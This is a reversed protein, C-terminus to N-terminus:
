QDRPDDVAKERLEVPERCCLCPGPFSTAIACIDCYYYLEYVQGNRVSHLNGTIEFRKGDDLARGKILLTRSYLNTDAFLAASHDNRVLSYIAGDKAEFRVAKPSGSVVRGQMYVTETGPSGANCISVLGCFAFAAFVWATKKM